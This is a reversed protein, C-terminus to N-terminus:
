KFTSGFKEVLPVADNFAEKEWWRDMYPINKRNDLFWSLNEKMYQKVHIMEHAITTCICGIDRGKEKVFVLFEDETEDLCLGLTGDDMEYPVITIKAPSIDLEVCLFQAFQELFKPYSTEVKIVTM